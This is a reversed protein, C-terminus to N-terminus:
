VTRVRRLQAPGEMGGQANSATLTHTHSHYYVNGGGPKSFRGGGQSLDSATQRRTGGRPLGQLQAMCIPIPPVSFKRWPLLRPFTGHYETYRPVM